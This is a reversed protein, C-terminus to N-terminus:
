EDKAPPPAVFVLGQEAEEKAKERALAEAAERRERWAKQNQVLQKMEPSKEFNPIFWVALGLVIAAVAILIDFSRWTWKM